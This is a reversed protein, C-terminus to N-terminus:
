KDLYWIITDKAEEWSYCVVYHGGYETLDQQWCVQNVSQNGRPSKMEIWLCNYGHRAIPLCIDPVGAKVGSAKLYKAEAKHRSGGNPIAFMVRLEPYKKEQWAAWNFLAIQEARELQRM